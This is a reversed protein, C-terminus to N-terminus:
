DARKYRAVTWGDETVLEPGREDQYRRGRM